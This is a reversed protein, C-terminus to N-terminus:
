AVTGPQRLSIGTSGTTQRIPLFRESGPLTYYSKTAQAYTTNCALTGLCLKKLKQALHPYRCNQDVDALGIRGAYIRAWVHVLLGKCANACTCWVYPIYKTCCM